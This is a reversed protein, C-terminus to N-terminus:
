KLSDITGTNRQQELLRKKELELQRQKELELQRQKELEFQRQRELIERNINQNSTPLRTGTAQQLRDNVVQRKINEQIQRRMKQKLNPDNVQKQIRDNIAKRDVKVRPAKKNPGRNKKENLTDIKIKPGKFDKGKFKEGTGGESAPGRMKEGKFFQERRNEKPASGATNENFVEPKFDFNERASRKLDRKEELKNPKNNAQEGKGKPQKEDKRPSEKIDESGRREEKRRKDNEDGFISLRDTEKKGLKLRVKNDDTLSHFEAEKTLKKRDEKLADFLFVEGGKRPKKMLKKFIKKKLKRKTAVLNQSATSRGKLVKAANKIDRQKEDVAEFIDQPRLDFKRGNKTTVELKGHLLAIDTRVKGAVRYVDSVIETGRVGMAATPTKILLTKKPAKKTFVSRLKGTMLNYTASRENKTKMKFQEFAFKSAPGISFITDDKMLVKVFSRKESELIDGEQIWEGVSLPKRVVENDVNTVYVEGRLKTVRGVKKAFVTQTFIMSLLILAKFITKM